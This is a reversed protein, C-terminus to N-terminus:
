SAVSIYSTSHPRVNDQQFLCPTGPFLWRRSPQMHRELIGVYAEADITGEHVELDGMSHASICGWLWWLPVKQQYRLRSLKKMKPMYFGFDTKKEFVLQFTFEESWLVHKWQREIWRLHSRAWLVRHAIRCLFYYIGEEAYYLKLNCKKICCHVTNLSLSKELASELWHYCSPKEFLVAQSNSSWCLNGGKAKICLSKGRFRKM